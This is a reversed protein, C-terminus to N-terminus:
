DNEEESVTSSRSRFKKILPFIRELRDLRKRVNNIEQEHKVCGACPGEVVLLWLFTFTLHELPNSIGFNNKQIHQKKKRRPKNLVSALDNNKKSLVFDNELCQFVNLETDFNFAACSVMKM